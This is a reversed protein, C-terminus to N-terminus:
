DPGPLIDGVTTHEHYVRLSTGNLVVSQLGMPTIGPNWMTVTRGDASVRMTHPHQPHTGVMGGRVQPDAPQIEKLTEVDLFCLPLLGFSQLTPGGLILAGECASGMVASC